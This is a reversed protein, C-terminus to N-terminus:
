KRSIEYLCTPLPGKEPPSGPGRMPPSGECSRVGMYYICLLAYPDGGMLPGRGLASGRSGQYRMCLPLSPDGGM